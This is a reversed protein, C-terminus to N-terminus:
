KIKRSNTYSLFHLKNGSKRILCYLTFDTFNFSSSFFLFKTKPPKEIKVSINRYYTSKGPGCFNEVKSLIEKYVLKM